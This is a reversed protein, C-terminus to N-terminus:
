KEWSNGSSTCPNQWPTRRNTDCTPIRSPGRHPDQVRERGRRRVEAGRSM